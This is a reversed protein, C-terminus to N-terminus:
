KLQLNIAIVAIIVKNEQAWIFFIEISEVRKNM